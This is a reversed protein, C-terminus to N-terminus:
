LWWRFVWLHSLASLDNFAGEPVVSIDNGHLSRLFFVFLVVCLCLFWGTLKAFKMKHLFNETKGEKRGTVSTKAAPKPHRPKKLQFYIKYKNKDQIEM